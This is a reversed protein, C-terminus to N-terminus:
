TKSFFALCVCRIYLTKSSFFLHFCSRYILIFIYEEFNQIAKPSVLLLFLLCILGIYVSFREQLPKGSFNFFQISRMYPACIDLLNGTFFYSRFLFYVEPISSTKLLDFNIDGTSNSRFSCQIRATYCILFGFFFFFFFSLVQDLNETSSKWLVLLM